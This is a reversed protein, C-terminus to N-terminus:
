VVPIVKRQSPVESSQSLGANVAGLPATEDINNRQEHSTRVSQVHERPMDPPMINM